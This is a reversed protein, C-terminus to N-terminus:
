AGEDDPDALAARGVEPRDELTIFTRDEGEVAPEPGEDEAAVPNHLDVFEKGHGDKEGEKQSEKDKEKHDKDKVEKTDKGEKDKSEKTEKEAKEKTDKGEKEKEKTEKEAKDKVKTDLRGDIENIKVQLEQVIGFLERRLEATCNSATHLDHSIQDLDAEISHFRLNFGIEEPTQGGQVVTVGDIFDPHVFSRVFTLACEPATQAVQTQFVFPPTVVAAKAVAESRAVGRGVLAIVDSEAMGTARLADVVKAAPVGYVLQDAPESV